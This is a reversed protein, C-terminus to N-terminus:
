FPIRIADNKITAHLKWFGNRVNCNALLNARNPYKAIMSICANDINGTVDHISSIAM